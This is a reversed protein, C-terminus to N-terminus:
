QCVERIMAAMLTSLPTADVHTIQAIGVEGSQVAPLSQATQLWTILGGRLIQAIGPPRVLSPHLAWARLPEYPAEHSSTKV